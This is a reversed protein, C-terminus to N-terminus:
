LMSVTGLPLSSCASWSPWFSGYFHGAHKPFLNTAKKKNNKSKHNLKPKDTTRAHLCVCERPKSSPPWTPSIYIARFPIFTDPINTQKLPKRIHPEFYKAEICIYTIYTSHKTTSYSTLHYFLPFSTSTISTRPGRCVIRLCRRESQAHGGQSEYRNICEYRRSWCSCM